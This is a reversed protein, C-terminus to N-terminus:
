RVTIPNGYADPLVYSGTVAGDKDAVENRESDATKYGFEYTGDSIWTADDIKPGVFHIPSSKSM